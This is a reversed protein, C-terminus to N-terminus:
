PTEHPNSPEGATPEPDLTATAAVHSPVRYLAYRVDRTRGERHLEWNSPVAPDLDSPSEVHVLADPALRPALAPWVRPWLGGAFPPDVFAIDFTATSTALWGLADGQVVQGREGGELRRLTNRLATALGADREIMVAADAGRSLAELGLAGTGAFVDVVRAGPLWPMLWNFLTERVRDSSPRLGAVNPVELRTGRWRGGILRVKGAPTNM